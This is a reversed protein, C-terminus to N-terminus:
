RSGRPRKSPSGKRKAEEEDEAYEDYKRPAVAVARGKGKRDGPGYMEPSPELEAEPAPADHYISTYLDEPEHDQSRRYAEQLSAQIALATEEPDFGQAAFERGEQVPAVGELSMRIARQLQQEEDEDEEQDGDDYDAEEEDYDGQEDGGDEEEDDEVVFPLSRRAGARSSEGMYAVSDGSSRRRSPGGADEGTQAHQSTNALAARIGALRASSSVTGELLGSHPTPTDQVPTGDRAASPSQHRPAIPAAPGILVDETDEGTRPTQSPSAVDPGPSGQPGPSAPAGPHKDIELSQLNKVLKPFIMTGMAAEKVKAIAEEQSINEFPLSNSFVRRHQAVRRVPIPPADSSDPVTQAAQPAQYLPTNDNFGPPSQRGPRTLVGNVVRGTRKPRSAAVDNSASRGASSEEELGALTQANQASRHGTSRISTSRTQRPSYNLDAITRAHRAGRRAMPRDSESDSSDRTPPNLYGGVVTQGGSTGAASSSTSSRTQRVSSNLNAITVATQASRRPRPEDSDPSSQRPPAAIIGDNITRGASVAQEASSTQVTTSEDSTSPLQFTTSSAGATIDQTATNNDYATVSAFNATDQPAASSEGGVVTNAASPPDQDNVPLFYSNITNRQTPQAQRSGIRSSRRLNPASSSNGKSPKRSGKALFCQVPNERSDKIMGQVLEQSLGSPKRCFGVLDEVVLPSEIQGHSQDKHQLQSGNNEISDNDDDSVIIVQGAPPQRTVGDFNELHVRICKMLVKVVIPAFANGIQKKICKGEFRFDTPFGQIVSFEALTFDREGSWHHCQGGSCTVTRGLPKSSDWPVKNAPRAGKVDHRNEDEVLTSCAQFASVFPKQGDKPDKSHTPKPWAPLQEGPAAGIMVLRKRTQPLGYEVLHLVKWKVSYGHRTFGQLLANFNPIWRDQALGFTQELTFIRPKFIVLIKECAFLAARNEEDKKGECTHAPSWTQCPPSFHVIDINLRERTLDTSMDEIFKYVDEQHLEVDPFNKRYTECCHAWWDCAVLVKLGAMEAGKSSGGAGCFADAASFKQEPAQRISSAEPDAKPAGNPVFSGGRIKEHPKRRESDPIRHRDKLIDNQSYHEIVEGAIPRQQHRYRRDPYSLVMRWRCTIPAEDEREKKTRYRVPDFRCEPFAKNTKHLTRITKINQIPVEVLAQELYTAPNTARHDNEDLEYIECVENKRPVIRGELNRTRAYARGRVFSDIGKYSVWIEYVELFEAEYRGVRVFVKLEVVQSLSIEISGAMVKPVKQHTGCPCPNRIGKKWHVCPGDQTDDPEITLKELEIEANDRDYNEEDARWPDESLNEDEGDLDIPNFRADGKQVQRILKEVEFGIGSQPADHDENVLIPQEQSGDPVGTGGLGPMDRSTSM